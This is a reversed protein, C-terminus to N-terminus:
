SVGCCFLIADYVDVELENGSGGQSSVWVQTIQGFVHHM